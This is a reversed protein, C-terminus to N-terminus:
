REEMSFLDAMAPQDSYWTSRRPRRKIEGTPKSAPSESREVKGGRRTNGVEDAGQTSHGNAPFAFHHTSLTKRDRQQCLNQDNILIIVSPTIITLRLYSEAPSEFGAEACPSRRRAPRSDSHVEVYQAPPKLGAACPVRVLVSKRPFRPSFSVGRKDMVESFFPLFLGRLCLPASIEKRIKETDEHRRPSFNKKLPSV